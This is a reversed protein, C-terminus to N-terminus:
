IEFQATGSKRFGNVAPVDATLRRPHRLSLAIEKDAGVPAARLVFLSRTGVLARFLNAQGQLFLQGRAPQGFEAGAGAGRTTEVLTGAADADQHLGIVEKITVDCHSVQRFDDFPDCVTLSDVTENQRWLVQRLALVFCLSSPFYLISFPFSPM